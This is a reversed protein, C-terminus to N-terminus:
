LGPLSEGPRAPRAERLWFLYGRLYDGLDGDIHAVYARAGGAAEREEARESVSWERDAGGM